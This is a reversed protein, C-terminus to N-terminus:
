RQWQIFSKCSWVRVHTFLTVSTMERARIEQILYATRTGINMYHMYESATVAHQTILVSLACREFFLQFVPKRTCSNQNIEQEEPGHM